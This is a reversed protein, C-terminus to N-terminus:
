RMLRGGNIDLTAGTIFAGAESALYVAAAGVDQPQGFRGLPIAARLQQQRAADLGQLAPSAIAAPALANVCVGHPALEQAFSRTLAVIGAKSAAYHVGTASSAQQGALSALNIIRAGQLLGESSELARGRLHAGALRCGIFCGRLNIAMVRDWEAMSIDWLSTAPTLAANNVMIDIQGFHGAALAFAAGFAGEDCVDAQLDLAERGEARLDEAVQRAGASADLLAVAAGARALAQAIAAGLGQAAGTVLATRGDLRWPSQQPSVNGARM